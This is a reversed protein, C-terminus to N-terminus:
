LENRERWFMCCIGNTEIGDRWGVNGGYIGDFDKVVDEDEDEEKGEGIERLCWLQRKWWWRRILELKDKDEMELDGGARQVVWDLLRRNEGNGKREMRVM